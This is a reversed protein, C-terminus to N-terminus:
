YIRLTLSETEKFILKELTFDTPSLGITFYPSRNDKAEIEDEPNFNISVTIIPANRSNSKTPINVTVEKIAKIISM